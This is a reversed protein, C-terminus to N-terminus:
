KPPGPPPLEAVLVTALEQPSRNSARAIDRLPTKPGEVTFGAATLRGSLADPTTALIPAVQELPAGM